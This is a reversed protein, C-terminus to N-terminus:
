KKPYNIEKTCIKDGIQKIGTGNDFVEIYKNDELQYTYASNGKTPTSIIQKIPSPNCLEIEGYKNKDNAHSIEGWLAGILLLGFLILITTVLFDSM